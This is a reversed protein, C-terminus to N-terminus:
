LVAFFYVFWNLFECRMLKTEVAFIEPVIDLIPTIGRHKESVLDVAKDVDEIIYSILNLTSQREATSMKMQSCKSVTATYEAYGALDPHHFLKSSGQVISTRCFIIIM